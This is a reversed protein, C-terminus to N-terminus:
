QTAADRGGDGPYGGAPLSPSWRGVFQFSSVGAPWSAQDSAASAARGAGRLLGSPLGAM